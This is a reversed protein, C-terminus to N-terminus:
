TYMLHIYWYMSILLAELAGVKFEDLVRVEDEAVVAEGALAVEHEGPLHM